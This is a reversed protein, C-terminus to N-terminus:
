LGNQNEINKLLQMKWEDEYNPYLQEFLLQFCTAIDSKFVYKLQMEKTEKAGNTMSVKVIDGLSSPNKCIEVTYKGRFEVVEEM